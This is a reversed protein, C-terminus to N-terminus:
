KSGENHQLAAKAIEGCDTHVPTHKFDFGVPSEKLEAMYNELKAYFNLAERLRVVEAELKRFMKLVKKEDNVWMRVYDSSTVDHIGVEGIKEATKYLKTLLKKLELEKNM